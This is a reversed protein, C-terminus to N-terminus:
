VLLGYILMQIAYEGSNRLSDEAAIRGRITTSLRSIEQNIIRPDTRLIYRGKEIIDLIQGSVDQLPESDAHIKLLLRYGDPNKESLELVKVPDPDANILKQAYGQALDFRGIATYHLFDNWDNELSNSAIQAQLTTCMMIVVLFGAQVCSKARM